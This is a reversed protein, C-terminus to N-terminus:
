MYIYDEELVYQTSPKLPTDNPVVIVPRIGLSEVPFTASYNGSRIGIVYKSGTYSDCYPSRTYWPVSKCDTYHSQLHPINFFILIM